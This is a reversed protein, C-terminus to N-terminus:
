VSELEERVAKAVAKLIRERQVATLRAQKKGETPKELTFGRSGIELSYGLGAAIKRATRTQVESVEGNYIRAITPLSLGALSAIASLTM